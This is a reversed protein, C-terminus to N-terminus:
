SNGHNKRRITTHQGNQIINLEETIDIGVPCWTICRGCGVCGFTGFQQKWSSFKHTLWQRYRASASSRVSGGHIYSFEMTFCSDWKRVREANAGTLDTVDEVTTCFCTPCVMTCNTCTLCRQAVADWEPHELNDTLLQPLDTTKVTRGMQQAARNMAKTIATIEKEGAPRSPINKLMKSGRESGIEVVFYSSHKQLIETLALDFGSTCQPGTNMSACFCTGGADVCNVAVIFVGERRAKYQADIFNGKLLITDLIGIANLECSRVGFFAYKPQHRGKEEESPDHIEFSGNNKGARFLTQAPPFLFRKWSHPGVTYSFYSQHKRNKLRYHGAEQEDIWGIPLDLSTAITDYVISGDRITPAITSYGEQQLAVLLLDLSGHEITVVSRDNM